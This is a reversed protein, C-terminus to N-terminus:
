TFFEVICAGCGGERCMFKTGTLGLKDRLYDVLVYNPGIDPDCGNTNVESNLTIIKFNM